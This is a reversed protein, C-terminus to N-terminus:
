HSNSFFQPTNEIGIFFQQFRAKLKKVHLIQVKLPIGQQKSIGEQFQFGPAILVRVM